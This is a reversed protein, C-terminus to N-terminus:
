QFHYHSLTLYDDFGNFAREFKGDLIKAFTLLYECDGDINESYFQLLNVLCKILHEIEDFKMILEDLNNM